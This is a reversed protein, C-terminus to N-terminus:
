GERVYALAEALGTCDAKAGSARDEFIRACGANTLADLQLEPNQDATSVRAYGIYALSGGVKHRLPVLRREQAPLARVSTDNIRDALRGAPGSM